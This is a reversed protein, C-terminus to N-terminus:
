GTISYASPGGNQRAFGVGTKPNGGPRNNDSWVVELMGAPDVAVKFFDLLSRDPSSGPLVGCFIGLTCIGGIHVYHSSATGRVVHPSGGLLGRVQATQVVWKATSSDKDAAETRYWALAAVGPAGGAVWGFLANGQPPDVRYQKTWTNGHTRSGQLYVHLPEGKHISGSYTVWVNGGRDVASAMWFNGYNADDAGPNVTVDRWTDGFDNSIGIKITSIPPVGNTTDTTSLRTVGFVVYVNGRGDTSIQGISSGNHASEAGTLPQTYITHPPSFTKGRDHSTAVLMTGTALEHWALYVNEGHPGDVALWERDASFAVFTQQPFTKGGDTSRSVEIGDIALDGIFITGDAAVAVDSDSGSTQSQPSGAPPRVTPLKQWTRGQTTSKALVAGGDGPTTVYVAGARGISLGPEGYSSQYAYTNAGYTLRPTSAAAPAALAALALPLPLALRLLRRM